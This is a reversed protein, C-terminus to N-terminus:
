RYNAINNYRTVIENIKFCGEEFSFDTNTPVTKSNNYVIRTAYNPFWLQLNYFNNQRFRMEISGKWLNQQYYVVAIQEPILRKIDFYNLINFKSDLYSLETYERKSSFEYEICAEYIYENVMM